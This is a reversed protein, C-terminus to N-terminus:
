AERYLQVGSYSSFAECGFVKRGERVVLGPCVFDTREPYANLVQASVIYYTHPKMGIVAPHHKSGNELVILDGVVRELVRHGGITYPRDVWKEALRAVMGSPHFTETVTFTSGDSLAVTNPHGDPAHGRVGLTVPHETLNVFVPPAATGM